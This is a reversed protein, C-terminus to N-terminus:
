KIEVVILRGSIDTSVVEGTRIAAAIREVDGAYVVSIQFRTGVGNMSHSSPRILRMVTAELARFDAMTGGSARVTLIRDAGNKQAFAQRKAEFDADISADTTPGAGPGGFGAQEGFGPPPGFGAPLGFGAPGGFGPLPVSPSGSPGAAIAVSPSGEPLRGRMVAAVFEAQATQYENMLTGFHKGFEKVENDADLRSEESASPSAHALEFRLSVHNSVFTVMSIQVMLNSIRQMAAQDAPNSAGLQGAAGAAKIRAIEEQVLPSVREVDDISRVTYLQKCVDRSGAALEAYKQEFPGQAKPPSASMAIALTLGRESNNLGVAITRVSLDSEFASDPEGLPNGSFGRQMQEFLRPKLREREGDTMPPLLYWRIALDETRLQLDLLKKTTGGSQGSTFENRIQVYDAQL